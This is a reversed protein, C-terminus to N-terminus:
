ANNLRQSVPGVMAEAFRSTDQAPLDSVVFVLHRGASFSAVRLPGDSPLMEPSSGISETGATVLLSV